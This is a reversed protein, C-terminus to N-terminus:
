SLQRFGDLAELVAEKIEDNPTESLVSKLYPIVEPNGSKGFLYILDGKVRDEVEQYNQWLFSTMHAALPRDSEAIIEFVVMAGLRVPWKDHILLPLFGPFITQHDLMMQAVQSALGEKLMGRLSAASLQAPDRHVIVEVIEDTTVSGDWRFHDDLIVTPASQIKDAQAMEPFMVGDIITLKIHDTARALTILPQVTVPCFPCKATIFIKIPAPARLGTLRNRISSSLLGAPNHSGDFAQLFLELEKGTPVAHYRINQLHLSPFESGNPDEEIVQLKPVMQTLHDCFMRLAQSRSDQTVTLGVQVEKSLSEAWQTIINQDESTM